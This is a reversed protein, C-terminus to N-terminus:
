TANLSSTVANMQRRLHPRKVLVIRLQAILRLWASLRNAVADTFYTDTCVAATVNLRCCSCDPRAELWGLVAARMLLLSHTRVLDHDVNGNNGNNDGDGNV